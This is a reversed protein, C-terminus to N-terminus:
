DAGGVLVDGLRLLDAVGGIDHELSELEEVTAGPALKPEVAARLRALAARERARQADMAREMALVAASTGEPAGAFEARTDEYRRRPFGSLRNVIVSDVALKRETLSRVLASTSATAHDSARTVVVFSTEASRLWADVERARATLGGLVSEFNGIFETLQSRLGVGTVRELVPLVVAATAKALRSGARALVLAPNALIKAADTAILATLRSPASLLDDAHALPPTDVVLLEYAQDARLEHLRQLAMYSESEGVTGALAQYIPNALIAAAAEPSPALREVVRDFTRKADLRFADLTGTGAEGRRRPVDVPHPREDLRELGLAHGLRPAPDITLVAVRKGRQAAALALAAACSTKGVGGEGVLVVLRKGGVIDGLGGSM